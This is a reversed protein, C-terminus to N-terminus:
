NNRDCTNWYSYDPEQKHLTPEISGSSFFRELIASCWAKKRDVLFFCPWIVYTKQLNKQCFVQRCLQKSAGKWTCSYMNGTSWIWVINRRLCRINTILELTEEYPVKNKNTVFSINLWMDAFCELANHFWCRVSGCLM